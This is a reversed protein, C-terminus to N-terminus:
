KIDENQQQQRIRGVAWGLVAVHFMDDSMGPWQVPVNNEAEQGPPIQSLYYLAEEKCWAAEEEPTLSDFFAQAERRTKAEINVKLRKLEEKSPWKIGLFSNM